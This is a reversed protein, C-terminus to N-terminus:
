GFSNVAENESGYSEMLKNFEMLVFVKSLSADMGSVRIDGGMERM